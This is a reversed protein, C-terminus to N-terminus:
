AHKVEKTISPFTITVLTGPSREAITLTAKNDYLVALRERLNDLGIGASESPKFGLGNDEVTVHIDDNLRKAKLTVFGGEIKPELGHRIANEVVPQLLMPALPEQLVAPEIDVSFELRDGMRIKILDLYHNLLKREQEFTGNTARSAALSGRLYHIFNELMLQAKAPAPEILSVVNALTNFLFHPEIQAQLLRLKAEALQKETSLTRIKERAMIQAIKKEEWEHGLWFSKGWVAAGHLLLGVGWGAATYLFWLKSPSKLLNIVCLAAIVIVYITAHKYFARIARVKRWAREYAIAQPDAVSVTSEQYRTRSV